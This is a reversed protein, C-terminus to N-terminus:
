QNVVSFGYKEFLAKAQASFLFDVYDIAAEQVKSTKIVAVPYVVKANIEDPGGGVVKIKTSSLADTSYVIGADVNGSEVYSLVARVDAGMVYKPTVKDTICLLDFAQQAYTGAPVSKPDGIAIKQVKDTALDAFGTLNLQSDAPVVLVLKNTLLNKRTSEVLLGEKQLTDMQKAAASVFIDCPAGNEIQTQLTGSSAFNPTLTVNPKGTTYQGNIVKLIDTLSAAASVNLTVPAVTTVTTSIATATATATVTSTVVITSPQATVTGTTQSGCGSLPIVLLSCILITMILFSCKLKM